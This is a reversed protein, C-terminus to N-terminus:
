YQKKGLDEIVVDFTKLTSHTTAQDLQDVMLAVLTFAEMLTIARPDMGTIEGLAAVTADMQQRNMIRAGPLAIVCCITLLVDKETYNIYDISQLPTGSQIGHFVAAVQYANPFGLFLLELGIQCARWYTEIQLQEFLDGRKLVLWQFVTEMIPIPSHMMSLNFKIVDLIVETGLCDKAMLVLEPLRPMFDIIHMKSAIQVLSVYRLNIHESLASRLELEQHLSSTNPNQAAVRSKLGDIYRNLLLVCYIKVETDVLMRDCATFLDRIYGCAITPHFADRKDAAKPDKIMELSHDLMDVDIFHNLSRAFKLGCDSVKFTGTVNKAIVANGTLNM